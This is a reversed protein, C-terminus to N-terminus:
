AVRLSLIHYSQYQASLVDINLQKLNSVVDEPSFTKPFSVWVDVTGAIKIASPPILGLSLRTEMKQEPLPQYISRARAAELINLNPAGSITVTYANDPIYELLEIGNESLHKKMAETPLSEFQLVA